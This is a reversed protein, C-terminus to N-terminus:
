HLNFIQIRVAVSRKNNLRQKSPQVGVQEALLRKFCNRCYYKLVVNLGVNAVLSRILPSLQQGWNLPVNLFYHRLTFQEAFVDREFRQAIDGTVTDVVELLSGHIELVTSTGALQHLGDVNQTVVATEVHEELQSVAKHGANPEAMAIPEVFYVFEVVSRPDRQM